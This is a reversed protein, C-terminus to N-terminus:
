QLERNTNSAGKGSKNKRQTNKFKEVNLERDRTMYRNQKRPKGQKCGTIIVADQVCRMYKKILWLGVKTLVVYYGSCGQKCKKKKSGAKHQGKMENNCIKLNTGNDDELHLPPYIIGTPTDMAQEFKDTISTQMLRTHLKEKRSSDINTNDCCGICDLQVRCTDHSFRKLFRIAPTTEEPFQIQCETQFKDYYYFIKIDEVKHEVNKYNRTMVDVHYDEFMDFFFPM